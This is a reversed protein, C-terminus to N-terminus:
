IRSSAPGGRLTGLCPSFRGRLRVFAGVRYARGSKVCVARRERGTRTTGAERRRYVALRNRLQETLGEPGDSHREVTWTLGELDHGPLAAVSFSFRVFSAM